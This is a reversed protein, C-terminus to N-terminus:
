KMTSAQISSIKCIIMAYRMRGLGLTGSLDTLSVQDMSIINEYRDDRRDFAGKFHKKNRTKALCGPCYPNCDRHHLCHEKSRAHLRATKAPESAPPVPEVAPPPLPPDAETGEDESDLPTSM